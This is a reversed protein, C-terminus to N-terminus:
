KQNPNKEIAQIIEPSDPTASPYFVAALKGNEDILYKQFNWKVRSDMYGNYEKNTLWRYIPAMRPGKVSIKAAMPFTIGYNQKCFKSITEGSGMEEFFFNNCPFGVIVLKGAYREYLKQLAEYQPTFKCKSATNVILIKRGKFAAFDITGGDLAPVKFDYISHPIETKPAFLFSFLLLM